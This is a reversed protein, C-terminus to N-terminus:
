VYDCALRFPKASGEKVGSMDTKTGKMGNSAM